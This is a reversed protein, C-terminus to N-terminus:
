ASNGSLHQVYLGIAILWSREIARIPIPGSGQTVRVINRWICPGLFPTLVDVHLALLPLPWYALRGMKDCHKLACQWKITIGSCLRFMTIANTPTYVIEINFSLQKETLITSNQGSAFEIVCLAFTASTLLPPPLHTPNQVINVSWGMWYRDLMNVGNCSSTACILCKQACTEINSCVLSVNRMASPSEYRSRDM